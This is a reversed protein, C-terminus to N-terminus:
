PQARGISTIPVTAIGQARKFVRFVGEAQPTSHVFDEYARALLGRWTEFEPKQGAGRLYDHFRQLIHLRNVNVVAPDYPVTFFDLFDEASELEEMQEIFNAHSM